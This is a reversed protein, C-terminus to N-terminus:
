TNRNISKDNEAIKLLKYVDLQVQILNEESIMDGRFDEYYKIGPNNRCCCILYWIFTFINMDIKHLPKDEENRESSAISIKRKSNKRSSEVKKLYNFQKEFNNNKQSSLYNNYMNNRKLFLQKYQETKEDRGATNQSRETGDKM